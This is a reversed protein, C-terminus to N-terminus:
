AAAASEERLMLFGAVALVAAAVVGIYFAFGLTAPSM